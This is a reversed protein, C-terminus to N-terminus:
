QDKDESQSDKLYKCHRSVIDGQFPETKIFVKEYISDGQGSLLQCISANSAADFKGPLNKKKKQVIFNGEREGFHDLETPWPHMYSDKMKFARQTGQIGQSPARSAPPAGTWLPSHSNQEVGCNYIKWVTECLPSFLLTQDLQNLDKEIIPWFYGAM